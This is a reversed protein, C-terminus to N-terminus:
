AEATNECTETNFIPSYKNCLRKKMGQFEFYYSNKYNSQEQLHINKRLILEKRRIIFGNILFVDNNKIIKTEKHENECIFM